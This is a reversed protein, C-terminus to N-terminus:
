VALFDPLNITKKLKRVMVIIGTGDTNKRNLKKSNTVYALWHLVAMFEPCSSVPWSCFFNPIIKMVGTRGFYVNNQSM